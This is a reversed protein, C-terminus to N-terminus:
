KKEIMEKIKAVIAPAIYKEKFPETVFYQGAFHLMEEGDSAKTESWCSGYSCTGALIIVNGTASGRPADNIKVFETKGESLLSEIVATRDDNKSHRGRGKCKCPRCYGRTALEELIDVTVPTIYRMDVNENCLLYASPHNNKFTELKM